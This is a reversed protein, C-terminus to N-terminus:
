IVRILNNDIKIFQVTSYIDSIDQSNGITIPNSVLYAEFEALDDNIETDTIEIILDNGVISVSVFSGTSEYTLEGATLNNNLGYDALIFTYAPTDAAWGTDPITIAEVESGIMVVPLLARMTTAGEYDKFITIPQNIVPTNDIEVIVIDDLNSLIRITEGSHDAIITVTHETGAVGTFDFLTKEIEKQAKILGANVAPVNPYHAADESTLDTQKNAEDEPTYGLAALVAAENVVGETNFYALTTWDDTGNGIKLKKTDTEFGIEGDALVPNVSTWTAALDRRIQITIAM